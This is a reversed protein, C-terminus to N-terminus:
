GPYTCLFHDTTTTVYYSSYEALTFPDRKTKAPIEVYTGFSLGAPHYVPTKRLGQNLTELEKKFRQHFHNRIVQDKQERKQSHCYLLVEKNDPDEVRRAIVKNDQAFKIIVAGNSEDPKEKYRKRSVVIYQFGLADIGNM